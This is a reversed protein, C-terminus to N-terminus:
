PDVGRVGVDVKEVLRRFYWYAGAASAGMVGGLVASGLHLFTLLIAGAIAGVSCFLTFHASPRARSRSLMWYAPFGVIALTPYCIFGAVVWFTLFDGVRFEPSSRTEPLQVALWILPAVLPSLIRGLYIFYIKIARAGV